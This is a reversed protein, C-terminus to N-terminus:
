GEACHESRKANFTRAVRDSKVTSYRANPCCASSGDCPHKEPRRSSSNRSKCSRRACRGLLPLRGAQGFPSAFADHQFRESSLRSAQGARSVDAANAGDTGARGLGADNGAHDLFATNRESWRWRSAALARLSTTRLWLAALSLNRWPLCRAHCNGHSRMQCIAGCKREVVFENVNHSSAMRSIRRRCFDWRRGLRGCQM